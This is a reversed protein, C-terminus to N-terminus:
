LRTTRAQVDNLAAIFDRRQQATLGGFIAEEADTLLLDAHALKRRGAATIAVLHRRRDKPDRERTVYQRTQLADLYAVLDGSDVTTRNALHKQYTPGEENLVALIAHHNPLLDSTALAEAYAKRVRLATRVLHYGIREELAHAATEPTDPSSGTM